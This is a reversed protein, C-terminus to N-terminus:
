TSRLKENTPSETCAWRTLPRCHQKAYAVAPFNIIFHGPDYYAFLASFEGLSVKHTSHRTLHGDKRFMKLIQRAAKAANRADCISSLVQSEHQSSHHAFRVVQRWVCEKQSALFPWLTIRSSHEHHRASSLQRPALWPALLALLDRSVDQFMRHCAGLEAPRNLGQAVVGSNASSQDVVLDFCWRGQLSLKVPVHASLAKTLANISRTGFIVTGVGNAM